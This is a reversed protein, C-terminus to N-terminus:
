TGGGAEDVIVNRYENGEEKSEKSNLVEPIGSRAAIILV